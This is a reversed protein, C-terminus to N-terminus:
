ASYDADYLNYLEVQIAYGLSDDKVPTLNLNQVVRGTSQPIPASNIECKPLSIILRYRIEPSAQYKFGSFTIQVNYTTGEEQPEIAGVAGWFEEYKQLSEFNCDLTLSLDMKGTREIASAERKRLTELYRLVELNNNISLNFSEIHQSGTGNITISAQYFMFPEQAPYTVTLATTRKEDYAGVYNASWKLSGDKNSSLNFSNFKLGKLDLWNGSDGIKYIGTFSPLSQAPRFVHHAIETITSTLGTQIPTFSYEDGFVGYLILGFFDSARGDGGLDGSLTYGGFVGQTRTFSNDILDPRYINNQTQPNHSTLKEWFVSGTTTGKFSVEKQLGFAGKYGLVSM